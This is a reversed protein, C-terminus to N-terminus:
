YSLERLRVELLYELADLHRAAESVDKGFGYLGHRRILFGPAGAARVRAVAAAAAGPWDQSNAVIPVSVRAVHTGIGAFAKAMEYGEFVLVADAAFRESLTAAAVSHTHGVAGAGAAKVLELHIHTEASPLGTAGDAAAGTEDVVVFDAPTLAGKDAGSRTVVLRLPDRGVVASFNGSTARNLGQSACQRAWEMLAEIEGSAEQQPMM